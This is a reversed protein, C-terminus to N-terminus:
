IKNADHQSFHIVGVAAGDFISMHHNEGQWPKRKPPLKWALDPFREALYSAISHKTTLGKAQFFKKVKKRSLFRLRISRRRADRKISRVVVKVRDNGKGSHISPLRIVVVSPSYLDVLNVFRKSATAGLSGYQRAYSRGGFDLLADPGQFVVFGLRSARLDLGLARERADEAALRNQTVDRNPPQPTGDAM